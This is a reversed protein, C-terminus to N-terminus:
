GLYKRAFPFRRRPKNRFLLLLRVFFSSVLTRAHSESACNAQKFFRLLFTKCARAACVTCKNTHSPRTKRTGRDDRKSGNKDALVAISNRRVYLSYVKKNGFRSLPYDHRSCDISNGVSRAGQTKKENEGRDHLRTDLQSRTFILRQLNPRRSRSMGHRRTHSIDRPSTPFKARM